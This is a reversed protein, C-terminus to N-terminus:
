ENEKHMGLLMYNSMFTLAEHLERPQSVALTKCSAGDRDLIEWVGLASILCRWIWYRGKSTCSIVGVIDKVDGGWEYGEPLPYKETDIPTNM